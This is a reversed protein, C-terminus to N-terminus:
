DLDIPAHGPINGYFRAAERESPRIGAKVISVSKFEGKETKIQLISDCVFCKIQGEYNSYSSDVEIKHGCTLCIVRMYSM